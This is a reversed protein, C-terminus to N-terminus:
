RQVTVGGAGSEVINLPRRRSGSGVTTVKYKSGRLARRALKVFADQRRMARRLAKVNGPNMRRRRRPMFGPAGGAAAGGFGRFGPVQLGGPGAQRSQVMPGTFRTMTPARSPILGGAFRAIAGAPGPLFSGAIGLGKKLAGGLFGFLGPDGRHSALYDGRAMHTARLYM